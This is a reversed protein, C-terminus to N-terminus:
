EQREAKLSIGTFISDLNIYIKGLNRDYARLTRSLRREDLRDRADGERASSPGTSPIYKGNKGQDRRDSNGVLHGVSHRSARFSEGQCHM